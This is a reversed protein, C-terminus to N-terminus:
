PEPDPEPVPNPDRDLIFHFSFDFFYFILPREPFYVAESMSFALNQAIKKNKSFLALYQRSGSGSGFKGFDSGPGRCITVTGSCRGFLDPGFSFINSVSKLQWANLCIVYLLKLTPILGLRSNPRPDTSVIWTNKIITRKPHPGQIAVIKKTM